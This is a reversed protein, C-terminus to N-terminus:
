AVYERSVTSWISDFWRQFQEVYVAGTSDAGTSAQHLLVADKGTLDWMDETEGGISVAHRDVPYLGFFVEDGNLIYAKFLPAVSHCRIQVSAHEVLGLSGLEEVSHTLAGLSRDAIRAARKRFAPSDELDEVRCPLAWPRQSDPFLIRVAISKPSLRGARVHDLPEQMAGVLTEGSLGAFDVTVHDAKFAREVHPRLEVPRESRARVYTGSGQRGVILGEDRLPRLAQQITQRSVGYKASLEAGSPMKDGPALKRTLIAARLHGAVQQYPPRPDDLDISM